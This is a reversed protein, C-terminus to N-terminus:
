TDCRRCAQHQLRYVDVSSRQCWQLVAKIAPWSGRTFTVPIGLVVHPRRPDEWSGLDISECCSLLTRVKESWGDTCVHNVVVLLVHEPVAPDVLDDAHVAYLVCHMQVACCLTYDACLWCVAVGNVADCAAGQVPTQLPMETALEM